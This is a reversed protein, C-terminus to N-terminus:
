RNAPAGVAWDLTAALADAGDANLRRCVKLSTALRIVVALPSTGTLM